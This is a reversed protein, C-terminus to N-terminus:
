QENGPHGFGGGHGLYGAVVDFVSAQMDQLVFVNRVVGGDETNVPWKQEAGGVLDPHDRFLHVFKRRDDNNAQPVHGSDVSRSEKRELFDRLLQVGRLTRQDQAAGALLRGLHNMLSFKFFDHAAFINAGVHLFRQQPRFGDEFFDLRVRRYTCLLAPALARARTAAGRVLGLTSARAQMLRNPRRAPQAKMRCCPASRSGYNLRTRMAMSRAPM